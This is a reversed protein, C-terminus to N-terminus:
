QTKNEKSEKFKLQIPKRDNREVWFIMGVLMVGGGVALATFQAYHAGEYSLVWFSSFASSAFLDTAVGLSWFVTFAAAALLIVALYLKKM